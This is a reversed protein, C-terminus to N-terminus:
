GIQTLPLNQSIKGKRPTPYFYGLYACEGAREKADIIEKVIGTM